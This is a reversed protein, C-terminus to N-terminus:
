PRLNKASRLIEADYGADLLDCCGRWPGPLTPGAFFLAPQSFRIRIALGAQNLYM